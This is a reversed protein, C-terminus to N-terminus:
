VFMRSLFNQKMKKIAEIESEENRIAADIMDVNRVIEMQTAKDSHWAITYYRLLIPLQLNIGTLYTYFFQEEAKLIATYLYRPLVGDRPIVVAYRNAVTSPKDLYAILGRGAASLPILTCGVPYVKGNVAREIDAVETLHIIKYDSYAACAKTM